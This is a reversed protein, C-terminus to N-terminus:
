HSDAPPVPRIRTPGDIFSPPDKPPPYLGGPTRFGREAWGCVYYDFRDLDIPHSVHVQLEQAQIADVAYCSCMIDDASPEGFLAQLWEVSVDPLDSRGVYEERDKVFWELVWGHDADAM